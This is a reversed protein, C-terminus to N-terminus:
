VQAALKRDLETNTIREQLIRNAEAVVDVSSRTNLVPIGTLGLETARAVLKRNEAWTAINPKAAVPRPVFDPPDDDGFVEEYTRGASPERPDKDMVEGTWPDRPAEKEAQTPAEIAPALARPAVISQNDDEPYIETYRAALAPEQARQEEAISMLELENTEQPFVRKIAMAEATKGLMHAPKAAWFQSLKKSTYRRQQDDWKDGEYQAWEKWTAVAWVPERFGKRLVGVKAAAPPNDDLWLEKWAGDPGCFLPGVQGLYERSRQAVLRLGDISVQATMVEKGLRSDKRKIFYIQAPKALPDLRTRQCVVGIHELEADTMPEKWGRGIQEKLVAIREDGFMRRAISLSDGNQVALSQATTTM